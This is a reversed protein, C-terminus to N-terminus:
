TREAMATVNSSGDLSYMYGGDRGPPGPGPGKQKLIYHGANKTKFFVIM